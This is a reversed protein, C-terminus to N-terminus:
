RMWSTLPNAFECELFHHHFIHPHHGFRIAVIGNLRVIVSADGRGLICLLLEAAALEPQKLHILFSHDRLIYECTPNFPQGLVGLLFRRVIM